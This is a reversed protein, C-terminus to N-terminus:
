KQPTLIEEAIEAVSKWFQDRIERCESSKSYNEAKTENLPPNINLRVMLEGLDNNNRPNITVVSSQPHFEIALKQLRALLENSLPDKWDVTFSMFSRDYGTKYKEGHGSCGMTSRIFRLQNVQDIEPRFDEEIVEPFEVPDYETAIPSFNFKSSLPELFDYAQNLIGEENMNITGNPFIDQRKVPQALLMRTAFYNSWNVSGDENRISLKRELLTQDLKMRTTDIFYKIRQPTPKKLVSFFHHRILTLDADQLTELYDRITFQPKKM